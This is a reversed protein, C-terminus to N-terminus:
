TSLMDPWLGVAAPLVTGQPAILGVGRGRGAFAPRVLVSPLV